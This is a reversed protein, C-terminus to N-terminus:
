KLEKLNQESITVAKLADFLDCVRQLANLEELRQGAWGVDDCRELIHIVDGGLEEAGDFLAELKCAFCGVLGLGRRLVLPLVLLDLM